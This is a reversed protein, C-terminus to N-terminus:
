RDIRYPRATVRGIKLRNEVIAEPDGRKFPTAEGGRYNGEAIRMVVPTSGEPYHLAGRPNFVLAHVKVTLPKTTGYTITLEDGDLPNEVGEVPGGVLAIGTELTRWRNMLSGSVPAAPSDPWTEVKFLGLRCSQGGEPLDGPEAVALVVYSRSTIAATRAQEVMGALLDTSAKRSQIGTGGLLSVGVMMLIVLIAIVVVM